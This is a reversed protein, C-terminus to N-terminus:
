IKLIQKTYELAELVDDEHDICIPCFDQTKSIAQYSKSCVFEKLLEYNFAMMDECLQDIDDGYLDELEQESFTTYSAVDQYDWDGTNFRLDLIDEQSQYHEQYLGTQYHKLTDEFDEQTNFCLLVSAYESNCDFGVSYFTLHPNQELFANTDAELQALIEKLRTSFLKSEM